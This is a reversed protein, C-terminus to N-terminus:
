KKYSASMWIYSECFSEAQREEEKWAACYLVFVVKFILAEMDVVAM